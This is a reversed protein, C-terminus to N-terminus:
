DESYALFSKLSSETEPSWHKAREIRRRIEKESLEDPDADNVRPMVVKVHGIVKLQEAMSITGKIGAADPDLWLIYTRYGEIYGIQRATLSHGLASVCNYDDGAARDVALADFTGETIVLGDSHEGKPLGFIAKDGVSNKYKPKQSALLARSVIGKLKGECYIPIVIRYAYRGSQSFGIKYRRLQANTIGRKLCYKRARISWVDGRLEQEKGLPTFDEPLRVPRYHKTSVTEKEVWEGLNLRQQLKIVATRSDRWGCNFCNGKGTAIDVGLRFRTDPTENREECYPCCMWINNPKGSKRWRIGHSDLAEILNM